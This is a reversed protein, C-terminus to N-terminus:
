RGDGSGRVPTGAPGDLFSEVTRFFFKPADLMVFHRTKAVVLRHDPINAIEAGYAAVLPERLEEPVDAPVAAILLVPQRIKAVEDRLDTTMAEYVAEAVTARDSKASPGAVADVEAPDTIMSSLAARNRKAFEEASLNEYTQRIGDAFPAAAEPTAAPNQLAPLFPVGDVAIVPGVLDPYKSAVSYAILGGISHGVIVPHDLEHTRIYRAIADTMTSVFPGGVAPQGAFGGLTLVHMEYRNEFHSVTSSWVSGPCALGPILIMPRGSGSVEARFAVPEAALALTAICLTVVLLSFTKVPSNM